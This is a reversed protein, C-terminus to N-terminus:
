SAELFDATDGDFLPEGDETQLLSAWDRSEDRVATYDARAFSGSMGGSALYLGAKLDMNQVFDFHSRLPKAAAVDRIIAETTEVNLFSAPIVNAPARVEFTHPARQPNAEHWEVITLDPHYWSLVEEVAGRTGKRKHFPIADAVADRKRPESWEPKWHSIALGWALWPLHSSPCVQPSWIDRIPAPLDTLHAAVQELSKELPSSRPPLVSPYTM